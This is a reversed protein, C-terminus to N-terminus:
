SGYSVRSHERFLHNRSVARANCDVGQVPCRSKYIDSRSLPPRNRGQPLPEPHPPIEEPFRLMVPGNKISGQARPGATADQSQPLLHDGPPQLFWTTSPQLLGQLTVQHCPPAPLHPSCRGGGAPLHNYSNIAQDHTMLVCLGTERRCVRLYVRASCTRGVVRGGGGGRSGHRRQM